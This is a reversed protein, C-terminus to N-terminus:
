GSAAQGVLWGIILWPGTIFNLELWFYVVSASDAAINVANACFTPVRTCCKVLRELRGPPEVNPLMSEDCISMFLTSTPVGSSAMCEARSSHPTYSWKLM